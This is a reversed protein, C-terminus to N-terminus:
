TKGVHHDGSDGVDIRLLGLRERRTMSDRSKVAVGPQQLRAPEVGYVDTHGWERVTLRLLIDQRAIERNKDFFGECEVQLGRFVDRGFNSPAAQGRRDAMM